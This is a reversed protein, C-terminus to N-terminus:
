KETFTGTIAELLAQNDDAKSALTWTLVQHFHDKGQVATLWYVANIKDLSGRIEYRLAPAGNITLSVPDSVKPDTLNDRLDGVVTDAYEQLNPNLDDTSESLVVLYQEKSGNGAQIDAKDNLQMTQWNGPVTVQSVGDGSDLVQGDPISAGGLGGSIQGGSSGSSSGSDTAEPSPTAEVTPEADTAEPSPTAEDTPLVDVLGGSPTAEDTPFTDSSTSRTPAIATQFAPNSTIRNAGLAAIGCCLLLLVGVIILIIAWVPFKGKTPPQVPPQVPTPQVPTPEPLPMPDSM